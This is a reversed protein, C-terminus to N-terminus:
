FGYTAQFDRIFFDHDCIHRRPALAILWITSLSVYAAKRNRMSRRLPLQILMIFDMADSRNAIKNITIITADAPLVANWDIRGDIALSSFIFSTQILMANLQDANSHTISAGFHARM